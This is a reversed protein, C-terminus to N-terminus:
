HLSSPVEIAAPSLPRLWHIWRAEDPGPVSTV